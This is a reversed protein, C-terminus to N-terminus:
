GRPGIVGVMRGTVGRDRRHSFFLDPHAATCRGLVHVGRVGAHELQLRVADALHAHAKGTAADRLTVADALGAGDFARVVEPGVEFAHPGICPGVAAAVQDVTFAGAGLEVLARLAHPVVGAVVGRWGAHVAAVIRGDPSSMLIPACDAVRVAVLLGPDDTVLADAKHDGWVIAPGPSPSDRRLVLVDPGHVQHVQIIRRREARLARAVLAFNAEITPKPDRQVEPPLEAPNGFNLSTFPGTSLGGLRTTFAHPVGLRILAPDTLLADAPLM